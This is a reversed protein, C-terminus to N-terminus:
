HMWVVGEVFTAVHDHVVQILRAWGEGVDPHKFQSLEDGPREATLQEGIETRVDDLDFLGAATIGHPGPADHM